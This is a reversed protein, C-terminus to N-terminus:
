LLMAVYRTSHVSSKDIAGGHDIAGTADSQAAMAYSLASLCLAACYKPRAMASSPRYESAVKSCRTKADPQGILAKAAIRASKCGLTQAM